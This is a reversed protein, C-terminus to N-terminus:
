IVATAIWLVPFGVVLADSIRGTRRVIVFAAAAAFLRADLSIARDGHDLFVLGAAIAGVAAPAVAALLRDVRPPITRGTLLSLMSIRLLYTGGGAGLIAIWSTM